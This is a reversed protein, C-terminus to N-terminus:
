ILQSTTFFFPFTISVHVDRIPVFFEVRKPLWTLMLLLYNNFLLYYVTLLLCRKQKIITKYPKTAHSWKPQRKLCRTAGLSTPPQPTFILLLCTRRSALRFLNNSDVYISNFENYNPWYPNYNYM